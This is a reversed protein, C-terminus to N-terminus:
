EPVLFAELHPRRLMRCKERIASGLFKGAAILRTARSRSVSVAQSRREPRSHGSTTFDLRRYTVTLAGCSGLSHLEHMNLARWACIRARTPPLFMTTHLHNAVALGLSHLFAKHAALLQPVAAPFLTSSSTLWRSCLDPRAAELVGHLWWSSRPPWAQNTPDGKSLAGKSSAGKSSHVKSSPM